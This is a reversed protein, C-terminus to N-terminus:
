QSVATPPSHSGISDGFVASKSVSLCLTFLSFEGRRRGQQERSILCELKLELLCTVNRVSLRVSALAAALLSRPASPVEQPLDAVRLLKKRCMRDTPDDPLLIVVEELVLASQFFFKLFAMESRGGKFDRVVLLKIRSRICEITGSKHWFRLNLKGTSQDDKGSMIHLTEVNPFCRLVNPIMKVDNRVAFRVELALIKVGQLMTSPSMGIGAKIITNGVDLVHKRPDLALYGLLHLKPAHGIKVTTTCNGVPHWADSYIFRELNPADLVFIEEIFCGIIQVCRLSQSVLRIRLKLVNGQLCLTELVPSRDLIFDLDRREVLVNYLGLDRLNRFCTARPLGATDPFRWMGLYLRTLTTLGLLSAPLVYDLPWRANVLVLEQIGPIAYAAPDYLRRVQEEYENENHPTQERLFENTVATIPGLSGLCEFEAM